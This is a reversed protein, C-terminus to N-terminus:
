LSQRPESGCLNKPFHVRWAADFDRAANGYGVYFDVSMARTRLAELDADAYGARHMYFGIAQHFPYKYALGDLIQLMRDATVVQRARKFAELVQVPGGAYDPRVTLDVLTREIGTVDHDFGSNEIRRLEVGLRASNKGNVVVLRGTAWSYVNRSVRQKNTFATDIGQQTLPGEPTPKASQERNIYITDPNFTLLGHFAAATAHCFYGKPALSAAIALPSAENWVYRTLAGELESHISLEHLKTHELMWALLTDASIREKLKWEARSTRILNTLDRKRWVRVEDLKDLLRRPPAGV